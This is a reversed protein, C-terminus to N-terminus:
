GRSNCASLLRGLLGDPDYLARLDDNVVRSTGPDVPAISAWEPTGIGFEVELGSELAVRRETIVGWDQTRIVRGGGMGALWDDRRVYLEPSTSLLVLDVDSDESPRGSAWSGVLALARLDSRSEAWVAASELLAEVEGARDTNVM